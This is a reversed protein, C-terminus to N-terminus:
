ILERIQFVKLNISFTAFTMCFTRRIAQGADRLTGWPGRGAPPLLLLATRGCTCNQGRADEEEGPDVLWELDANWCGRPARLCERGLAM